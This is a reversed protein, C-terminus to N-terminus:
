PQLPMKRKVEEAATSLANPFKIYIKEREIRIPRQHRMQTAKFAITFSTSSSTHIRSPEYPEFYVENVDTFKQICPHICHPIVAEGEIIKNIQTPQHFSQSQLQQSSTPSHCWTNAPNSELRTKLAAHIM